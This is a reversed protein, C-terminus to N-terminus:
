LHEPRNINKVEVAREREVFVPRMKDAALVLIGIPLGEEFGANIIFRVIRDDSRQALEPWGTLDENPRASRIRDLLFREVPHHFMLDNIVPVEAEPIAVRVSKPHTLVAVVGRIVNELLLPEIAQMFTFPAPQDTDEIVPVLNHLHPAVVANGTEM